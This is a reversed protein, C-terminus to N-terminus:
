KKRAELMADAVAYSTAAIGDPTWDPGHAITHAMVFGQVAAAAFYDRLTMGGMPMYVDRYRDDRYEQVKELVPFAPGGDDVAM